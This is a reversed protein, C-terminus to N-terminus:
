ECSMPYISNFTVADNNKEALIYVRWGELVKDTVRFLPTSVIEGTYSTKIKGNETGDVTTYATYTVLYCKRSFTFLALVILSLVVFSRIVFDIKTM